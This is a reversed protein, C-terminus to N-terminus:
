KRTNKLRDFFDAHNIKTGSMLIGPIPMKFRESWFCGGRLLSVETFFKIDVDSLRAIEKYQKESGGVFMDGQQLKDM